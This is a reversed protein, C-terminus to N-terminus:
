VVGFVVSIAIESGGSPFTLVISGRINAIDFKLLVGLISKGDHRLRSIPLNLDHKKSRGISQQLTSSCMVYLLSIPSMRVATDLIGILLYPLRFHGHQVNCLNRKVKSNIIQILWSEKAKRSPFPLKIVATLTAWSESLCRIFLFAFGRTTMKQPCGSSSSCTSNSRRPLRRLYFLTAISTIM